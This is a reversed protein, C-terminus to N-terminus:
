LPCHGYKQFGMQLLTMSRYCATDSGESFCPPCSIRVATGSTSNPEVPLPIVASVSSLAIADPKEVNTTGDSTPLAITEPSQDSTSVAVSGPIM